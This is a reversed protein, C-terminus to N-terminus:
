GARQRKYHREFEFEVTGGLKLGNISEQHYIKWFRAWLDYRLHEDGVGNPSFDLTGNHITVGVTVKRGIWTAAPVSTTISIGLDGRVGLSLFSLCAIAGM